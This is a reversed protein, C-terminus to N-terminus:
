ILRDLIRSIKTTPANMGSVIPRLPAGTKHPKPIFYLYALQIKNKDPMMKTHQWQTIQQKIRLNNLLSVVKYLTNMLPDSSLQIYANTKAQYKEIKEDYDVTSGIHFIGSKD